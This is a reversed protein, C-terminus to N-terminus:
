EGKASAYRATSAETGPSSQSAEDGNKLTDIMKKQLGKSTIPTPKFLDDRVREISKALANLMMAAVDPPIEGPAIPQILAIGNSEPELGFVPADPGAMILQMALIRRLIEVGGTQPVNGIIAQALLHTDSGVSGQVFVFPVNGILFGGDKIATATDELGFNKCVEEFWAQHMEPIAM